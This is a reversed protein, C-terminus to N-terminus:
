NYRDVGIVIKAPEQEANEWFMIDAMRSGSLDLVKNDRRVATMRGASDVTACTIVRNRVGKVTPDYSVSFRVQVRCEGNSRRVMQCSPYSVSLKYENPAIEFPVEAFRNGKNKNQKPPESTKVEDMHEMHKIPEKPPSIEVLKPLEAIQPPPAPNPIPPKPKAGVYPMLGNYLSSDENATIRRVEGSEYHVEFEVEIHDVENRFRWYARFNGRSSISYGSPRSKTTMVRTRRLIVAYQVNKLQASVYASNTIVCIIVAAVVLVAFIAIYPWYTFIIYLPVGVILVAVLCGGDNKKM